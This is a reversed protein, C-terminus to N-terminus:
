GRVDFQLRVIFEQYRRWDPNNMCAPRYDGGYWSPLPQGKADCQLWQAPPTAFQSRMGPPWHRDFTELKVISTACVYGLALRIGRAGFRCITCPCLIFVKVPGLWHLRASGRM